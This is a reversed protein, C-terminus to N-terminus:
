ITLNKSDRYSSERLIKIIVSTIDEDKRGQIAEHWLYGRPENSNSKFTGLSAISQNISIIRRTFLATKIGPLNKQEKSTIKISREHKMHKEDNDINEAEYRNKPCEYQKFTECVEYEEEGLKIFTIKM